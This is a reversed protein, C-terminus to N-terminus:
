ASNGSNMREWMTKFALAEGMHRAMDFLPHRVWFYNTQQGEFGPAQAFLVEDSTTELYAKDMDLVENTYNLLTSIDMRPIAAVEEATYGTLQGWGHTGVGRPDYGTKAAWGNLFWLEQNAPLNDIHLTKFVDLARAAHWLTVAISNAAPDPLWHLCVEPCDDLIINAYRRNEEILDLLPKATPM